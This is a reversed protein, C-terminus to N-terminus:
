ELLLFDVANTDDLLLKDTNSDDLLLLDGYKYPDGVGWLELVINNNDVDEIVGMVTFWQGTDLGFRPIILLVDTDIFYQFLGRTLPVTYRFPTLGFLAQRRDCETQADAKNYFLTYAEVEEADKHNLLVTADSTSVFQYDAGYTAKVDPTLSTVLDGAGQVKYNHKYGLRQRKSPPNYSLKEVGDVVVDVSTLTLSPNTPKDLIGIKLLGQRNFAWYGGVGNMIDSLAASINVPSLGTVYGIPASNATNVGAFSVADFADPYILGARTTIVRKVIDATTQAFGGVADGDVDATITGAPNAGLRILGRTLDVVYSGSVPTWSDVNTVTGASTLAVGKDRVASVASITTDHVQYVLATAHVNVAEINFAKGFVLPKPKGAQAATGEYSSQMSLSQGGGSDLDLTLTPVPDDTLWIQKTMVKTTANQFKINRIKAKVAGGGDYECALDYKQVTKGILSGSIGITRAFWQGTASASLDSFPASSIGNQDTGLGSRLTTGDSCTFDFALQKNIPGTTDWYIEYYIQDNAQVVYDTVSSMDMYLFANATSVMTFTLDLSDRGTGLYLSSQIPIDFTPQLDRLQISITDLTATIGAATGKFIRGFNSFPNGAQGLYVEISRYAWSLETLSDFGISPYLVSPNALTIAGFGPIVSSSLKGGAFMNIQLNYPSQLIPSFVQNAPTDTPKSWFGRSSLYVTTTAGTAPDYPTAVVIYVPNTPPNNLVYALPDGISLDYAHPLEGISYVGLGTLGPIM